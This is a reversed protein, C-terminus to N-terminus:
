RTEPAMFVSVQDDMNPTPRPASLSEGYFMEHRSVLLSPFWPGTNLQPRISWSSINNVLVSRILTKINTTRNVANQSILAMICPDVM